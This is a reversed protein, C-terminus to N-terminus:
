DENKRKIETEPLIVDFSATAPASKPASYQDSTYKSFLQRFVMEGEAGTKIDLVVGNGDIIVNQPAATFGFKAAINNFMSADGGKPTMDQVVYISAPINFGQIWRSQIAEPTDYDMVDLMVVAVDDKFLDYASLLSPMETQCAGCDLYFFNLLVIKHTAILESLKVNKKGNLDKFTYDHLASGLMYKTDSVVNGIPQLTADVVIETELSGASIQYSEKAAYGEPLGTVKVTYPKPELSVTMLGGDTFNTHDSKAVQKEGDYVTISINSAGPLKMNIFEHNPRVLRFVYDVNKGQELKPLVTIDKVPQKCLKCHYSKQGASEFTPEIDITPWEEIEHELQPLERKDIKGCGNQCTYEIEGPHECTADKTIRGTGSYDHGTKPIVETIKQQCVSCIYVDLGDKECTPIKSDPDDPLWKLSHAIMDLEETDETQCRKCKKSVSGKTTCTADVRSLEEWDHGLAQSEITEQKGCVSCKRTLTGGELCTATDSVTEWTHEKCEKEDCAVFATALLAILAATLVLVFLKKYSKM